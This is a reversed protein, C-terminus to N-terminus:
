AAESGVVYDPLIQELHRVAPWAYFALAVIMVIAGAILHMLGIGAGAGSGVLGSFAWASQAQPEFVNDALQGVLLYSLPMLTMSMQQIAAFVRGQLDHPVKIQLISILSANIIPPFIAGFCAAAAIFIPNSQTGVLFLSLGMMTSGILINHIRPRFGGWISMLITGGISGASAVSMILGLAIEDHNTRSLVYPTRLVMMGAIFFNNIGMLCFIYFLSRSEWVYRLGAFAQSWFSLGAQAAAKSKDPKPIDVLLVVIVGVLFTVLDVTIVGSLGVFAYLAGAFSPAIIGALPGTLMQIANARDRHKNPILMTISAQFAPAQFVGFVAQIVAVLYLHWLQFIGLLFVSLLIITGIAQGADALAMVYRRDYKDAFVGAFGLTLVRPLFAFFAVLTLPTADGTTEYIWIGLALSTMQSGILSFTQTLLLTYFTFFSRNM